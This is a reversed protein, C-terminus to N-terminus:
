QAPPLGSWAHVLEPTVPLELLKAVWYLTLTIVGRLMHQTIPSELFAALAGWARAYQDMRALEAQRLRREEERLVQAVGSELRAVVVRMAPIDRLVTELHIIAARTAGWEAGEAGPPSEPLLRSVPSEEDPQKPSAM